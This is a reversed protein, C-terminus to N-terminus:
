AEDEKKPEKWGKPRGIGVYVRWNERNCFIQTIVRGSGDRWIFSGDRQPPKISELARLWVEGFFMSDRKYYRGKVFGDSAKMKRWYGLPM